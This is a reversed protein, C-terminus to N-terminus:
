SYIYAIFYNNQFAYCINYRGAQNGEERDMSAVGESHTTDGSMLVSPTLNDTESRSLRRNAQYNYRYAPYSSKKMNDQPRKPSM